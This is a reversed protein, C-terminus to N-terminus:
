EDKKKINGNFVAIVVVITTLAGVFTFGNLIIEM